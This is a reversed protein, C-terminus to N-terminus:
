IFYVFESRSGEIYLIHNWNVEKKELFYSFKGLTSRNWHSLCRIEKLFDILENFAIKELKLLVREYDNKDLVAFHTKVKCLIRAARPRRSILALEGFCKGTKLIAVENYADKDNDEEEAL